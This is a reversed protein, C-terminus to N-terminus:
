HPQKTDSPDPALEQEAALREDAPTDATTELAPKTADGETIEGGVTDSPTSTAQARLERMEKRRRYGRGLGKKLLWLGVILAAGTLAGLFFVTPVSVGFDVGFVELNTSATSSVSVGLGFLVALAILVIGLVAM